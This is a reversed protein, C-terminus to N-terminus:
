AVAGNHPSRLARVNSGSDGYGGVGPLGPAPLHRGSGDVNAAPTDIPLTRFGSDTVKPAVLRGWHKAIAAATVSAGSFQSRYARVAGPVQESTGGAKAITAKAVAITRKHQDTVTAYRDLPVGEAHVLLADFLADRRPETKSSQRGQVRSSSTPEPLDKVVETPLRQAEPKPSVALLDQTADANRSADPVANDRTASRPVSANKKQEQAQRWQEKREAARARKEAVQAMTLNHQEWAPFQWGGHAEVLLGLEVLVAVWRSHNPVRVAVVDAISVFGDREADKARALLRVFLVECWPSREAALIVKEDDYYGCQLPVYLRRRSM